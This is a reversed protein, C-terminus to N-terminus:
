GGAGVESRAKALYRRAQHQFEEDWPTTAPIALAAELEIIAQEHDGHTELADGFGVRYRINGPELAAARGHHTLAGDWTGLDMVVAGVFVRGLFRRIRSLQAVQYHFQGLADHAFADDADFELLKNTMDWVDKGLSSAEGPGAQKSVSGKAAVSARLEEIGDPRAALAIDAHAMARRYWQLDAETGTAVVGLAVAAMAARWRADVDDPVAALYGELLDFAAVADGAEMSRDARQVVSLTPRLVDPAIRVEQGGVASATVFLQLQVVTLAFVRSRLPRRNM